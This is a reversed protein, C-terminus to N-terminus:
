HSLAVKGKAKARQDRVLRTSVFAFPAFAFILGLSSPRLKVTSIYEYFPERPCSVSGASNRTKIFLNKLVVESPPTIHSFVFGLKYYDLNKNTSFIPYGTPMPNKM